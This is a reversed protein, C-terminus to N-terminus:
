RPVAPLRRPPPPLHPPEPFTKPAPARSPLSPADAALEKAQVSAPGRRRAEPKSRHFLLLPLSQHADRHTLFLVSPSHSSPLPTAAHGDEVEDMSSRARARGRCLRPLPLISRRATCLSTSLSPSASLLSSLCHPPTHPEPHPHDHHARSTKSPISDLALALPRPRHM